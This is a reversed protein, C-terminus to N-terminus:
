DVILVVQTSAATTVFLANAIPMDLEFPTGSVTAAQSWITTAAGCAGANAADYLTVAGTGSAIVLRALRRVASGGSTVADTYAQGENLAPLQVQVTTSGGPIIIKYRGLGILTAGAYDYVPM